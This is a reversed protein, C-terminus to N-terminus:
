SLGRAILFAFLVLSEIFALALIWPLFMQGSAGPNRSISEVASAIAKGQGTAGGLVALGIALGAGLHGLGNGSAATGAAEQALAPEVMWLLAVGVVALMSFLRM